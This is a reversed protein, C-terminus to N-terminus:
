LRGTMGGVGTVRVSRYGEQRVLWELLGYQGIAKRDYWGSWYGM